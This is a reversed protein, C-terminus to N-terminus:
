QPAKMKTWCLCVDTECLSPAFADFVYVVFLQFLGGSRVVETTRAPLAILFRSDFNGSLIEKSMDFNCFFRM